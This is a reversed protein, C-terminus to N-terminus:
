RGLLADVVEGLRFPKSLFKAGAADLRARTKAQPELGSTAVLHVSADLSRAAEIVDVGSLEPLQMDVLAASFPRGEEHRHRLLAVADAGNAVSEVNAGRTALADDLMLRLAPEDDAVLVTLGQLPPAPTTLFSPLSLARTPEDDDVAGRFLPLKVEFTAGRGPISLVRIVGGHDLVVRRVVSLGMGTNQDVGKTSFFPEFVQDAQEQPIGPGTDWVRVRAVRDIPWSMEEALAKDQVIDLDLHLEGEGGMADRANVGLNFLAQLLGARDGRIPVQYHPLNSFCRIGADFGHRFLDYSQRVPTRLDLPELGTDTARAARLLQRTIDRSRRLMGDLSAVLPGGAVEGARMLEVTGGLATLINNLDHIVGTVAVGVFEMQQAKQLRGALPDRRALDRLQAWIAPEHDAATAFGPLPGGDLSLSVTAGTLATFEILAARVDQGQVLRDIVARANALNPLDQLRSGIAPSAQGEELGFSDRLARNEWLLRGARDLLLAGVPLHDLTQALAETHLGAGPGEGESTM